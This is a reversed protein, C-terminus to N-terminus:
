WSIYTHQSANLTCAIERQSFIRLYQAATAGAFGGGIVVVHGATPRQAWAPLAHSMVALAGATELFRRRNFSMQDEQSCRHSNNPMLATGKRPQRRPASNNTGNRLAACCMPTM